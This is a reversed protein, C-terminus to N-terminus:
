AGPRGIAYVYHLFGKYDLEQAVTMGIKEAVGRSPINDPLILSILRKVELNAFAWDRSALAAETAYGKRQHAKHVHWGLEVEKGIPLSQPWPGCDGILSGDEKLVIGWLGHGLEEYHALNREIWWTVKDDDFPAPYFSMTDPDGLVAKLAAHDQLTLPRLWLRETELLAEPPRGTM